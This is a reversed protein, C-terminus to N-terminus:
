NNIEAYKNEIRFLDSKFKKKGGIVCLEIFRDFLSM